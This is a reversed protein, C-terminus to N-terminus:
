KGLRMEASAYEDLAKRFKVESLPVIHSRRWPM